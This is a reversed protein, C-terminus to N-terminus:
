EREPIVLTMGAKLDRESELKDSNAVLIRRWRNGDGYVESAIRWLSDGKKVTYSRVSSSSRDDNSSLLPAKESTDDRLSVQKSPNPIVLVMEPRLKRPDDLIDNNAELIAKWRTTTGYYKNSIASLTEGKKVVHMKADVDEEDEASQVPSSGSTLPIESPETEAIEEPVTSVRTKPSSFLEKLAPGESIKGGDGRGGISLNGTGVSSAGNEAAAEGATAGGEALWLWEEIDRAEEGRNSVQAAEEGDRNGTASPDSPGGTWMSIAVIGVAMIALVGLLQVEKSRMKCRRTIKYKGAQM